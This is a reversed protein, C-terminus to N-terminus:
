ANVYGASNLLEPDVPTHVRGCTEPPLNVRDIGISCM